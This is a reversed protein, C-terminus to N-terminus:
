WMLLCSSCSMTIRFSIFCRIWLTWVYVHVIVGVHLILGL